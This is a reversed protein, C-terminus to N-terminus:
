VAAHRPATSHDNPPMEMQSALSKRESLVPSQPLLRPWTWRAQRNHRTLPKCKITARAKAALFMLGAPVFWISCYVCLLTPSHSRCLVLCSRGFLLHRVM